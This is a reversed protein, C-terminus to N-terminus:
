NNVTLRDDKTNFELETIDYFDFNDPYKRFFSNFLLFLDTTNTSKKQDNFKLNQWDKM